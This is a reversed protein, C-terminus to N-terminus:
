KNKKECIYSRISDQKAVIEEMRTSIRAQRILLANNYDALEEIKSDIAKTFTYTHFSNWGIYALVVLLLAVDDKHFTM